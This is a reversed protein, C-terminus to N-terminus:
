RKAASAPLTVFFTAGKDPASEADVRGDHREVIRRVIALGIGSGSFGAANKLREFPEFLKSRDAMDFGIGDDRIFLARGDTREVVGIEIHAVDRKGTYKWANSILNTVVSRFLSADVAYAIGPQITVEVNREPSAARLEAVAEECLASVDVDRVSLAGRAVKALMLFDDMLTSMNRIARRVRDLYVEMKESIPNAKDRAIMDVSMQIVALPARLDHSVMSNFGELERLATQLQQTRESVREELQVNLQHLAEEATARDTIDQCVGILHTLKGADDLLPFAWTHLYRITGDPRYIREDHSYPVHEHFVRNTMDIVRQRDDPHVMTLYQEYSPTYSEPTLGYIRYLEASWTAHPQSIDWEWTGLHSVGQTDVLMQESRRLRQESRKLDTVDRSICVAGHENATVEALYWFRVGGPGTDGWEFSTSGGTAGASLAVLLQARQPEAINNAALGGDDPVRSIAAVNRYTTKGDSDFAVVLDRSAHLAEVGVM